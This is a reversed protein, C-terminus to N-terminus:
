LYSETTDFTQLLRQSNHATIELIDDESCERVEGIARATNHIEAEWIGASWVSGEHPPNDTELLLREDPIEKTYLGGQGAAIMRMGVSFLFGDSLARGFDKHSGSFWHFVCTNNDLIGMDEFMRFIDDYSKVAHIFILRDNGADKIDSLLRELVELQKLRTDKRDGHYDLGIEGILHTQPLLTEFHALDVEGIRGNAVWWPHIGLSVKLDPYRELAAKAGVFSSPIVTADICTIKESADKAIEEYNEAFDLHCHM